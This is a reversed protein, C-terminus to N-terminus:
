PNSLAFRLIGTPSDPAVELGLTTAQNYRAPLTEKGAADKKSIEVRYFGYAVGPIDMGQTTLSVRGRADTNGSAPKLADGLFKEPVLTVTAGAVPQGNLTVHVTRVTLGVRSAQYAQIREAIERGSVRGDKDRDLKKRSSGLAPSHNLETSDLFGDRNRDYQALAEQSADEASLSPMPVRRGWCGLAVLVIGVLLSRAILASGFSPPASM